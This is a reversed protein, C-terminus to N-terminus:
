KGIIRLIGSAIEEYSLNDIEFIADASGSYVPEREALLTNVRESLPTKGQLLPRNEIGDTRLNETLEEATAKLYVCFTKEKILAACGPDLLTGGGLSLIADGGESLITGLYKMELSRFGSEGSNSFIEPISKGEGKCIEEDLDAFPLGTMRSLAAGVSTKGCGMFGSLAVKM